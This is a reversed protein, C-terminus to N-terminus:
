RRRTSPTKAPQARSPTPAGRSPALCHAEILRALLALQEREAKPAAGFLRAVGLGRLSSLVLQVLARSDASAALEPLVQVFRQHLAGILEARHRAIHTRLEPEDVSGFYLAWAALFRPPQYARQWLAHVLDLCRRALPGTAEPWSVGEPGSARLIADLVQMMLVAKSGFHHQLAGPTVGAAKAVEFVTTGQYSRESLVDITTGILHERTARAQLAKTGARPRAPRRPGSADSVTTNPMATVM